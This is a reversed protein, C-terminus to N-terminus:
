DRNLHNEYYEDTFEIDTWGHKKLIAKLDTHRLHYDISMLENLILDFPSKKLANFTNDETM